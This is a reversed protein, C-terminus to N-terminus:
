VKLESDLVRLGVGLGRPTRGAGGASAPNDNLTGVGGLVGFRRFVEERVGLRDDRTSASCVVGFRRLM